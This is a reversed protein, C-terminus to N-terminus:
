DATHKRGAGGRKAAQKGQRTFTHAHPLRAIRAIIRERNAKALGSQVGMASEIATGMRDLAKVQTSILYYLYEVELESSHASNKLREEYDARLDPREDVSLDLTNLWEDVEAKYDHVSPRRRKTSDLAAIGRVRDGWRAALRSVSSWPWGSTADALAISADAVTRRWGSESDSNPPGIRHLAKATIACRSEWDPYVVPIKRDIRGARMLAPEINEVYNTGFLFCIEQHKCVDRLDQLRNLMAPTVLDMFRPREASASRKRLLDDVEDFLITVGRVHRLLRFILAAEADMRDEGLRTFDAPTVRILRSEARGWRRTDRWMERAMAEAVATKSSGPPGHLVLSYTAGNASARTARAMEALISHLRAPHPALLDVPDVSNLTLGDTIITFRDKCLEWLRHEILDRISVLANISYATTALHIGPFRIRDAPWGVDAPDDSREL